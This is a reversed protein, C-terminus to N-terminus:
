MYVVQRRGTDLHVHTSYILIGGPWTNILANAVQRPSYGPVDMDVARGQLHLSRPHGGTARNAEPTRYWSNIIFPRGIRDRAQQLHKALELINKVIDPTPPIRTGEKTAEGWTFDGKPLIPQGTYFTSTNGPLKFPKGQFAPPYVVKDGLLVQAHQDYIYWSSFKRIFDQEYKIAFKIHRNFDGQQDRYAWSHLLLSTGKAITYKENDPLQSSQLPRRKLITDQTVQLRPLHPYVIQGDFEVVAHQDYVFWQSLDNIFDQEHKLAIKIHSSFDGHADQFAYSHLAFQSGQAVSHKETAPLQSSQIPRRKFLTDRYIKLIFEAQQEEWPYVVEGDKEVQIHGGYVFWTNFGKVNTGQLAVKIHGNFDGQTPDAYAYSHLPFTDGQNVPHVEAPALTTVDEPRLKLQTDQITRLTFNASPKQLAAWTEAGVIGDVTLGSARQFAEVAAKTAPGFIGDASVSHGADSLAQQLAIVDKGRLYPMTQLLTREGPEYDKTPGDFYAQPTQGGALYRQGAPSLSLGSTGELFVQAETLRRRLLGAEVNTGPNRYLVLASEIRSWDGTKLVETITTFNSNGYFHAGLNYAFSLIAGRQKENMSPWTPIKELPPLFENELQWRLLEEADEPTITDGLEFPSGDRKRTSGWGITYPKGGTRPDPYANRSFGEFTKILEIAPDPINAM